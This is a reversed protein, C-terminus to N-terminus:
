SPPNKKIFEELTIADWNSITRRKTLKDTWFWRSPTFTRMFLYPKAAKYEGNAKKKNPYCVCKNVIMGMKEFLWKRKLSFAIDSQNKGGFPSKVDLFSFLEGSNKYGIFYADNRGDVNDYMTFFLDKAKEDWIILRDPGYVTPELIAIEKESTKQHERITGKYLTRTTKHIKYFGEFITFPKIEKNRYVRKIFGAEIMDEVWFDFIEEQTPNTIELMENM